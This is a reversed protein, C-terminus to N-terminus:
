NEERNGKSTDIPYNVDLWERVLNLNSGILELELAEQGEKGGTEYCPKHGCIKCVGRQYGNYTNCKCCGWGPVVCPARIHKCRTIKISM